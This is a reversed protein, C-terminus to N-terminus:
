EPLDRWGDPTVVATVPRDWPDAPLDAVLEDAFVLAAVPAGPRARRLARDYSGGGRGLRVGARSVALAPVLVADADAIADLGEPQGDGDPQWAVWDLDRDALLVPVLVRVGQEALAALLEVSGPETRLPVYAAVCVWGQAACRDVVHARIAARAAEVETAPRAARTALLAARLEAKLAAHM